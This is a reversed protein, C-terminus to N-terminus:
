NKGCMLALIKADLAADFYAEFVDMKDEDLDDRKADAIQVAAVPGWCPVGDKQCRGIAALAEERASQLIAQLLSANGYRVNGADDKDADLEDKLTRATIKALAHANNRSQSVLMYLSDDDKLTQRMRESALRSCQCELFSLDTKALNLIVSDASTENQDAIPKLTTATYSNFAAEMSNFLLQEIGINTSTVLALKTKYLKAFEKYDIINRSRKWIDVTWLQYYKMLRAQAELDNKQSADQNNEAQTVLSLTSNNLYDELSDFVAVENAFEDFQALAPNNTAIGTNQYESLSAVREDNAAGIEKDFINIIEKTSLNKIDLTSIFHDADKVAEISATLDSINDYASPINGARYSQDAKQARDLILKKLFPTNTVSQKEELTLGDFVVCSNNLERRCLTVFVDEVEDPIELSAPPVPAEEANNILAYAQRINAVPIMRLGLSKCKEKLDVMEGTNPDNEARYYAPVFVRTKGAAKAAEIKQVLGGVYGVSGNPLISGTFVFDNTLTRGDLATMIALTIMAGASPGDVAEQATLELHYGRLPIGRELAVTSAASWMAARFQEGVGNPRDEAIAVLLPKGSKNQSVTLGLDIVQGSWKGTENQSVTLIPLKFEIPNMLNVANAEASAGAFSLVYLAIGCIKLTHWIFFRGVSINM